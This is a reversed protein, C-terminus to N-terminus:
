GCGGCGGTDNPLGLLGEETVPQVEVTGLGGAAAQLALKTCDPGRDNLVYLVLKTRDLTWELDILELQLKWDAIRDSWGAFASEADQRLRVATAEDDPSALRVIPRLPSPESAPQVRDAPHVEAVRQLYTGLQLGRHTEVVVSTGRSLAAIAGADFRAVEPITGYRVLAPSM